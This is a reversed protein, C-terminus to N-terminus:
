SHKPMPGKSINHLCLAFSLCNHYSASPDALNETLPGSHLRTRPTDWSHWGLGRREAWGGQEKGTSFELFYWAPETSQSPLKTRGLIVLKPDVWDNYGTHHRLVFHSGSTPLKLSFKCSIGLIKVTGSGTSAHNVTNHRSPPSAEELM